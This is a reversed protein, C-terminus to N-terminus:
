SVDIRDTDVYVAATPDGPGIPGWSSRLRVVGYVTVNVSDYPADYNSKNWFVGISNNSTHSRLICNWPPRNEPTFLFPGNLDGEVIVTKDVWVSPNTVIEDVSGNDQAALNTSAGGRNGMKQPQAEPRFAGFAFVDLDASMICVAFLAKMIKKM